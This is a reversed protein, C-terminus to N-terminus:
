KACEERRLILLEPDNITLADCLAAFTPSPIPVNCNLVQCFQPPSLRLHRAVTKQRLGRRRIILRVLEGDVFIKSKSIPTASKTV